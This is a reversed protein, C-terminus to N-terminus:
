NRVSDFRRDAALADKLSKRLRYTEAHNKANNGVASEAEALRTKYEAKLKTLRIADMARSMGTQSPEEKEAHSKRGSQKVIGTDLKRKALERETMVKPFTNQLREAAESVDVSPPKPIEIRGAAVAALFGANFSKFSMGQHYLGMQRMEDVVIDTIEQTMVLAPYAKRVHAFFQEAAPMYSKIQDETIVTTATM